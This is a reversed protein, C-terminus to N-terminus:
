VKIAMGDMGVRRDRVRRLDRDDRIGATRGGDYIAYKASPLM